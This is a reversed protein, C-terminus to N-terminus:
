VMKMYRVYNIIQIMVESLRIVFGLCMKLSQARIAYIYFICKIYTTEHQAIYCLVGKIQAKGFKISKHCFKHIYSAYIIHHAETYIPLKEM